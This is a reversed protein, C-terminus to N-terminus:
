VVSATCEDNVCQRDAALPQGCLYCTEVNYARPSDAIRCDRAYHGDHAATSITRPSVRNDLISWNATRASM